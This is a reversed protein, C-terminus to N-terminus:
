GTAVPEPEATKGAAQRRLYATYRENFREAVESLAARCEDELDDDGILTAVENTDSTEINEILIRVSSTPDTLPEIDPEAEPQVHGVAAQLRAIAPEDSTAAFKAIVIGDGKDADILHVEYLKLGDGAAVTEGNGMAARVTSEYEDHLAALKDDLYEAVGPVGVFSFEGICVNDGHDEPNLRYFALVDVHEGPLKRRAKAIEGAYQEGFREVLEPPLPKAAKEAKAQQQDVLTSLGDRVRRIQAPRFKRLTPKLEEIAASVEDAETQETNVPEDAERDELSEFHDKLEDATKRVDEDSLGDLHAAIGQMAKRRATTGTSVAFIETSGRDRAEQEAVINAIDALTSEASAAFEVIAEDSAANLAAHIQDLAKGRDPKVPEPGTENPQEATM